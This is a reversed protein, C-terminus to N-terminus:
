YGMFKSAIEIESCGKKKMQILLSLDDPKSIIEWSLAKGLGIKILDRYYDEIDEATKGNEILVKKIKQNRRISDFRKKNRREAKEMYQEYRESSVKGSIFDNWTNGEHGSEFGTRRGLIRYSLRQALPKTVAGYIFCLPVAVLAAKLGFVFGCIILLIIIILGLAADIYQKLAGRLYGNLMILFVVFLFCLHFLILGVSM